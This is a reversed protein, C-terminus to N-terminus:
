YYLDKVPNINRKTRRGGRNGNYFFLRMFKQKGEGLDVANYKFVDQNNGFINEKSFFIMQCKIWKKLGTTLKMIVLGWQYYFIQIFQLM